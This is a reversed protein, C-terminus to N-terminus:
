VSVECLELLETELEFARRRKASLVLFREVNGRVLPFAFRVLGALYTADRDTLSGGDRLVTFITRHRPDWFDSVNLLQKLGSPHLPAACEALISAELEGDYPPRLQRV